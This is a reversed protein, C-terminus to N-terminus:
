AAYCVRRCLEDVGEQARIVVVRGVRLDALAHLLQRDAADAQDDVLQAAVHGLGALVAAAAPQLDVVAVRALGLAGLRRVPPQPFEDVGGLGRALEVAARQDHDGGLLVGRPDHHGGALAAVRHAPARVLVQGGLRELLEGARVHGRRQGLELLGDLAGVARVGLGLARVVVRLVGLALARDLGARV